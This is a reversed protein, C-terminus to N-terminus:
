QLDQKKRHDPNLLAAEASTGPKPEDEGTVMVRRTAKEKTVVDKPLGAPSTETILGGVAERTPLGHETSAAHVTRVSAGTRGIELSKGTIERKMPLSPEAPVGKGGPGGDEKWGGEIGGHGHSSPVTTVKKESGGIAPVGPGETLTGAKLNGQIAKWDTVSPRYLYDKGSGTIPQTEPGRFLQVGELFYSSELLSATNVSLCIKKITDNAWDRIVINLGWSWKKKVLNNDLKQYVDRWGCSRALRGTALTELHYGYSSNRGRSPLAMYEVGDYGHSELNIRSLVSELQYDDEGRDQPQWKEYAWETRSTDVTYDYVAHNAGGGMQFPVFTENLYSRWWSSPTRTGCLSPSITREENMNWSWTCYASKCILNSIIGLTAGGSVSPEVFTTWYDGLMVYSGPSAIEDRLGNQRKFSETIRRWYGSRQLSDTGGAHIRSRVMEHNERDFASYVCIGSLMGLEAGSDWRGVRLAPKARATDRDVFIQDLCTVADDSGYRITDGDERAAYGLYRCLGSPIYRLHKDGPSGDDSESIFASPKNHWRVKLVAVLNDVEMWDLGGPFYSSAYSDFAERLCQTTTLMKQLMHDIAGDFAYNVPEQGHMPEGFRNVQAVTCRLGGLVIQRQTDTNTVFIIKKASSHLDVLSATRVFDQEKTAIGGNARTTSVTYRDVAFILPYDLHSIIWAERGCGAEPANSAIGILVVEDSNIDWNEGDGVPISGGGQLYRDVYRWSVVCAQFNWGGRESPIYRTPVEAKHAIAWDVGTPQSFRKERIDDYLTIRIGLERWDSLRCVSSAMALGGGGVIYNYITRSYNMNIVGSKDEPDKLTKTMNEGIDTMVIKGHHKGRDAGVGIWLQDSGRPAIDPRELEDERILDGVRIYLRRGRVQRDAPALDRDMHQDLVMEDEDIDSLTGIAPQHLTGAAVYTSSGGHSSDCFFSHFSYKEAEKTIQSWNERCICHIPPMEWGMTSDHGMLAERTDRGQIITRDTINGNLSHMERNHNRALSALWGSDCKFLLPDVDEPGKTYKEPIDRPQIGRIHFFLCIPCIGNTRLTERFNASTIGASFHIIGEDESEREEESEEVLIDQVPTTEWTNTSWVAISSRLLNTRRIADEKSVDGRILQETWRHQIEDNILPYLQKALAVGWSRNNKLAGVMYGSVSKFNAYCMHAVKAARPTLRGKIVKKKVDVIKDKDGKKDGPIFIREKREETNDVMGKTASAEYLGRREQLNYDLKELVHDPGPGAACLLILDERNKRCISSSWISGMSNELNGHFKKKEVLTKPPQNLLVARDKDDMKEWRTLMYSAETYASSRYPKDNWGNAEMLKEMEVRRLALGGKGKWTQNVDWPFVKPHYQIGDTGRWFLYDRRTPFESEEM